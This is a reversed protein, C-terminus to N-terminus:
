IRNKWFDVLNSPTLIGVPNNNRLVVTLPYDSLKDAVRDMDDDASATNIDPLDALITTIPESRNLGSIDAIRLLKKPEDNNNLVILSSEGSSRIDKWAKEITENPKITIPKNPDISTMFDSVKAKPRQAM